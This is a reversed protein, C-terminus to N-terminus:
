KKKPPPPKPNEDEAGFHILSESSYERCRSFETINKDQTGDTNVILSESLKPLLLLSGGMPVKAYEIITSVEIVKLYDPIDIAHDEIRLLDLTGADVWFRGKEGVYAEGGSTQLKYAQHMGSIEFGYWIAERGALDEKAWGTTRGGDNVFLNRALSTFTGSGLMGSSAFTSLGVEQFQSAGLPAFLEKGGIFAVELRLSDLTKFVSNNAPKHLRNVTEQCAFNPLRMLEARAQRKIRSLTLVWQPLDQGNTAPQGFATLALMVGILLVKVTKERCDAM